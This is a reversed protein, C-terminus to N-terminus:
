DDEDDSMEGIRKYKDTKGTIWLGVSEESVHILCWELDDLSIAPHNYLKNQEKFSNYIESNKDYVIRRIYDSHIQSLMYIKFCLESPASQAEEWFYPVNNQLWKVKEAIEEDFPTPYKTEEVPYKSQAM